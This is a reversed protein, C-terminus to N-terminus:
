LSRQTKKIPIHDKSALNQTAPTRTIVPTDSPHPKNTIQKQTQAGGEANM